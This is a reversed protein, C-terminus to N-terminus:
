GGDKFRKNLSLRAQKVDSFVLRSGGVDQYEEHGKGAILVVDGERANSIAYEIAMARDSEITVEAEGSLGATIQRIIEESDENRPNDDTIILRAAMKEAIGAMQPRKGKDRGGGCGFVCWIEGKNHQRLAALANKLGDPTHAYDVVVSVPYDGLIEMRGKVPSVCAVQGLIEQFDFHPKDAESAMVTALVALINSVNFSGALSTKMTGEGWPTVVDLVFGSGTFELSRPFVDAKPNHLSYTYSKVNRALSNLIKASFMDDMNVVAIKLKPSLFLKRKDEGYATMGGHYDLHDRSLNTFVAVDFESTNVRNQSLGHSSVEMVMAKGHRIRVEEFIRQVTIADPTTGPGYENSAYAEGYLGYGLTGSIGCTYGLKSLCQGIFQCCSTKGNTGTIGILWFESAPYDFFRAVLRAILTSLKEVPIVPVGARTTIENWENDAEVLVANAGGTIVDDIYDRGDKVSGKYALFLDGPEIKRSDMEIGTLEVDISEPIDIMQELLESLRMQRAMIEATNM